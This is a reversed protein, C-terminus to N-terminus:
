ERAASGMSVHANQVAMPRSPPASVDATQLNGAPLPPVAVTQVDQQRASGLAEFPDKGTINRYLAAGGIAVGALVAASGVAHGVNTAQAEARAANGGPGAAPVASFGSQVSSLLATGGGVTGGIAAGAMAAHMMQTTFHPNARLYSAIGNAWEPKGVNRLVHLIDPIFFTALAGVGVATVAGGVASGIGGSLISSLNGFTGGVAGRLFALPSTLTNWVGDLM